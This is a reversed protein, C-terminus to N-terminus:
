STQEDEAAAAVAAAVDVFEDDLMLLLLVLVSGLSFRGSKRVLHVSVSTSLFPSPEAVAIEM